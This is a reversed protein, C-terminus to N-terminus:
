ALASLIKLLESRRKNESEVIAVIEERAGFCQTLRVTDEMAVQHSALLRRIRYVRRITEIGQTIM